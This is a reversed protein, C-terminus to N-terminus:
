ESDEGDMRISIESSTLQDISGDEYRVILRCDRDVDLAYANRAGSPSLVRIPRGIVLSRQRYIQAYGSSDPRRYLAMFRNLFGAALRNKGNDLQNHAIADASQAIEPPFGGSPLYVNFGIGLVAYDLRGSELTCSAETLIGCVKKGNILIDNVWKIQTQRGSLAEIAECAAVAAMTTIRAAQAPLLHTPRLLLSMYVGTDPPSYFERGMRGRGMTQENALIVAGEPAGAAARQRLIANTSGTCPLVEPMPISADELLQQVGQASLVDTHADLCYGRNQMADISYGAARLVNVAKWVATRSVALAEAIQEGSLYEGKHAELLALLKEKTSM